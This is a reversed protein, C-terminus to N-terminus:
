EDALEIEDPVPPPKRPASKSFKGIDPDLLGPIGTIRLQRVALTIVVTNDVGLVEAIWEINDITSEDLRYSKQIRAM